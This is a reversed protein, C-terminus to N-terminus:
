RVPSASPFKRGLMSTPGCGGHERNIASSMASTALIQRGVAGNVGMDSTLLLRGTNADEHARSITEVEEVSLCYRLREGRSDEVAFFNRYRLDLIVERLFSNRGPSGRLLSIQSYSTPSYKCRNSGRRLRPIKTDQAALSQKHKHQPPAHTHRRAQKSRPISRLKGLKFSTVIRPRQVNQREQLLRHQATRKSQPTITTRTSCYHVNVRIGCGTFAYNKSMRLRADLVLTQKGSPGTPALRTGKNPITFLLKISWNGYRRGPIAIM